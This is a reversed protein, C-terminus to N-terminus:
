PCACTVYRYASSTSPRNDDHNQSNSEELLLKTDSEVEFESDTESPEFSDEKQELETHEFISEMDSDSSITLSDHESTNDM